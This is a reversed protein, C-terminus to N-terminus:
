DSAVIIYDWAVLSGIKLITSDIGGQIRDSLITEMRGDKKLEFLNVIGPVRIEVDFDGTADLSGNVLMLIFHKGDESVKIFPIVMLCKEIRVPLKGNSIWDCVNMYQERIQKSHLISWPAYGHVAVRGGLSNEYVTFTPGLNERELNEKTLTVLESIIQVDEDIPEFVHCTRDDDEWGSFSICIDRVSGGGRGNLTHRTMQESIGSEYTNGIRVGCYEGLGNDWIIQLAKGDMLVGKSLMLKLEEKTYGEAMRGVLITGCALDPDMTLPIGIENLIYSKTVVNKAESELWNEASSRAEFNRSLAPYLGTNGYDESVDDITKWLPRYKKIEEMIETKNDGHIVNFAIGNMGTMLSATCEVILSHLSKSLKQYPFNEVEYQIDKIAEPVASIQRGCELVKNLFEIPTRDDYFGEGPRIKAAKLTKMWRDFDYGQYSFSTLRISMFGIEINENVGHVAKEIIALVDDISNINHEVWKERL